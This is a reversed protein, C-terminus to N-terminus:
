RAQARADLFSDIEALAADRVLDAERLIEHASEPGWIRLRADPLRAAARRIAAPDVLRDHGAALLLLPTTVSELRGQGQLALTSRYAEAVWAWSPPGVEIEPKERKWWLEDEYRAVDHTLLSQRKKMPVGPRENSKWAQREPRGIKTMLWAIRAGLRPGFPASRLGLMPAVLVAADPAIRRESLARLTLHGGMSHAVVVHPGATRASWEAFFAALDEIWPAFDSAHGVLTDDSLRGSGGQGRWDFSVIRWGARHWHDFAEYYKEFVDGRGGLFLLSGREGGPWTFTRLPWEDAARWSGIDAGAPVVRRNITM